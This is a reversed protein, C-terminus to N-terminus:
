PVIDTFVLSAFSVVSQREEEHWQEYHLLRGSGLPRLDHLVSLCAYGDIHTANKSARILADFDAFDGKALASLQARDSADLADRLPGADAQDGFKPGIHSWDVSVLILTRPFHTDLDARLADVFLRYRDQDRPATGDHLCDEMSGCLVPLIPPVRDGYLYRLFVVPFELAHETRHMADNRTLTHRTAEHLRSVLERQTPVVGLPTDFDKDTLMFIDEASSHSPGLLVVLDYERDRLEQFARAYAQPGVRPDIHPAVLAVPPTSSEAPPCAAFLADLQARLEEPDEPYSQGAHAAPRVTAQRFTDEIADRKQRYRLNDLFLYRDLSQIVSLLLDSPLSTQTAQFVERQLDEISSEGDFLSFLAWAEPKVLIMDEGIGEPDRLVLMREGDQEVALVDLDQRLRPIPDTTSTFPPLDDIM